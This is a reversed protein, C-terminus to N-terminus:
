GSGGGGKGRGGNTDQVNEPDSQPGVEDVASGGGLVGGGLEEHEGLLGVSSPVQPEYEQGEGSSRICSGIGFSINGSSDPSAQVYESEAHLRWASDGSIM